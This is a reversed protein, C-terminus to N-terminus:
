APAPALHVQRPLRHTAYAVHLWRQTRHIRSHASISPARLLALPACYACHLWQLSPTPTHSYEDTHMYAALDEEYRAKDKACQVARPRLRRNVASVEACSASAHRAVAGFAFPLGSREVYAPSRAVTRPLPRAPVLDIYVQREHPLLDSCLVRPSSLLRHDTHSEAYPPCWQLVDCRLVFSPWLERPLRSAQM